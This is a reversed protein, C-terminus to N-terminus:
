LLLFFKRIDLFTGDMVIFLEHGSVSSANHLIFIPPLVLCNHVNKEINYYLTGKTSTYRNLYRITTRGVVYMGGYYM